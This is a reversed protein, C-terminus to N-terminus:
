RRSAESATDKGTPPAGSYPKKPLNDPPATKTSDFSALKMRPDTKLDAFAGKRELLYIDEDTVFEKNLAERTMLIKANLLPDTVAISKERTPLPPPKMISFRLMAPTGTNSEGTVLYDMMAIQENRTTDFRVTAEIGDPPVTNTGLLDSPDMDRTQLGGEKDLHETVKVSRLTV